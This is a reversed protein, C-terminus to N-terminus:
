EHHERGLGDVHRDASSGIRAVLFVHFGLQIGRSQQSGHVDQEYIGHSRGTGLHERVVGHQDIRLVREGIRSAESVFERVVEIDPSSHNEGGGGVIGVIAPSDPPPNYVISVQGQGLRPPESLEGVNLHDGGIGPM